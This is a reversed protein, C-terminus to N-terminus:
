GTFNQPYHNLDSSPSFLYWFWMVLDESNSKFGGGTGEIGPHWAMLGPERTTKGPLGFANDHSLYGTALGPLEKQDSPSIIHKKFLRTLDRQSGSTRVESKQLTLGAL